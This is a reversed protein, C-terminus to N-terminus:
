FPLILYPHLYLFLHLVYYLRSTTYLCVLRVMRGKLRVSNRDSVTPICRTCTYLQCKVVHLMLVRTGKQVMM